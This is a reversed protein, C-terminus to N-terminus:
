PRLEIWFYGDKYGLRDVSYGRQRAIRVAAIDDHLQEIGHGRADYDPMAAKGDRSLVDSMVQENYSQGRATQSPALNLRISTITKNKASLEDLLAGLMDGTNGLKDHAQNLLTPDTKNMYVTLAGDNANHTAEFGHYGVPHSTTPTDDMPPVTQQTGNVTVTPRYTVTTLHPFRDSHAVDFQSRIREPTAPALTDLAAAFEPADRQKLGESLLVGDRPQRIYPAFGGLQPTQFSPGGEHVHIADPAGHAAFGSESPNHEPPLAVARGPANTQISDLRPYTEVSIKPPASDIYRTILHDALFSLATVGVLTVPNTAALGRLALPAWRLVSSNKVTAWTSTASQTLNSFVPAAPSATVAARGLTKPIAPTVLPGHAHLVSGLGAAALGTVGLATLASHSTLVPPTHAPGDLHVPGSTWPHTSPGFRIPSTM